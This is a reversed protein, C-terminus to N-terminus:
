AGIGWQAQGLDGSHEVAQCLGEFPQHTLAEEWSPREATGAHRPGQGDSRGHSVNIVSSVVRHADAGFDSSQWNATARTVLPYERFSRSVDRFNAIRV